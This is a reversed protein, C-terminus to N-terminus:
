VVWKDSRVLNAELSDRVFEGNPWRVQCEGSEGDVVFVDRMFERMEEVAKNQDYGCESPHYLGVRGDLVNRMGGTWGKWCLWMDLGWGLTNKGPFIGGIHKM